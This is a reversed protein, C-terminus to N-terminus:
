AGQESQAQHDDQGPHQGAHALAVSRVEHMWRAIRSPDQYHREIVSQHTNLIKTFGDVM